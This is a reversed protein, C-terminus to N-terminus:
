SPIQRWWAGDFVVMLTQGAAMLLDGGGSLQFGYYGGGAAVNHKINPNADTQLIVVSGATWNTGLIRQVEVAGTIDFYNGDGLTINTASAVDIGQTMKFRGSMTVPGSLVGNIIGVRTTM